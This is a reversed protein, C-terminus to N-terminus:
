EGKTPGKASLYEALSDLLKVIPEYYLRAIIVIAAPWALADLVGIIFNGYTDFRLSAFLYYPVALVLLFLILINVPSWRLIKLFEIVSM